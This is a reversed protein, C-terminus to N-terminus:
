YLQYNNRTVYWDEKFIQKNLEEWHDYLITYFVFKLLGILGASCEITVANDYGEDFAGYGKEPDNPACYNNWFKYRTRVQNKRM